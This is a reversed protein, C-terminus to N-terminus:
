HRRAFHNSQKARRAAALCCQQAGNSAQLHWMLARDFDPIGYEEIRGAADIQGCLFAPEPQHELGICQPGVACHEVIDGIAELQAADRGRFDRGAHLLRQRLDPEPM